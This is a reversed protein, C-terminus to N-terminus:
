QALVTFSLTFTDAAGNWGIDENKVAVGLYRLNIGLSWERSVWWDNGIWLGLAGGGAARQQDNAFGPGDIGLGALGLMGGLHLGQRADPFYDIFPGITGLRVRGEEQEPDAVTARVYDRSALGNTLLAGGVVLGKEPTGGLMLDFGGASTWTRSETLLGSTFTTTGPGFGVSIRAYFGQHIRRSEKPL